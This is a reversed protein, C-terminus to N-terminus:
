LVTTTVVEPDQRQHSVALVVVSEVEDLYIFWVLYPFRRLAARRVQGYVTRYARPADGIDHLVADLDTLLRDAYEPGIAVYWNLALEIDHQAAERVIVTATM